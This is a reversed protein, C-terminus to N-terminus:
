DKLNWPCHVGYEERLARNWPRFFDQLQKYLPSDEGLLHKAALAVRKGSNAVTTNAVNSVNRSPELGIFRQVNDLELPARVRNWLHESCVLHIQSRPFFRLWRNIQLIYM